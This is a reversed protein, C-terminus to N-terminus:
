VIPALQAQYWDSSEDCPLGDRLRNAMVGFVMDVDVLVRRATHSAQLTWGDANMDLMKRYRSEEREIMLRVVYRSHEIEEAGLTNLPNTIDM